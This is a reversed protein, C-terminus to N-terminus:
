KLGRVGFRTKLETKLFYDLDALEIDTEDERVSLVRMLKKESLKEVGSPWVMKARMWNLLRLRTECAKTYQKQNM